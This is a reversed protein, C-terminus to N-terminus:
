LCLSNVREVTRLIAPHLPNANPPALIDSSEMEPIEKKLSKGEEESLFERETLYLEMYTRVNVPSSSDFTKKFLKGKALMDITVSVQRLDTPRIFDGDPTDFVYNESIETVDTTLGFLKLAWPSTIHDKENALADGYWRTVDGNKWWIIKPYYKGMVTDCAADTGKIIDPIKAASPILSKRNGWLMFEYEHNTSVSDRGSSDSMRVYTKSALERAKNWGKVKTKEVPVLFDVVCEKFLTVSDSSGLVSTIERMYGTLHLLPRSGPIVVIEPLDYDQQIMRVDHDVPRLMQLSAYGMYNFTVPYRDKQLEPIVGSNDTMGVVNGSRDTISALPLPAETEADVLRFANAHFAGLIISVSVIISFAKKMLNMTM